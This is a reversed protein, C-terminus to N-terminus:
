EGRTLWACPMMSHVLNVVLDAGALAREADLLSFLDCARWEAVDADPARAGRSLGEVHHDPALAYALARGVFGTAGAIVVTPRSVAPETPV